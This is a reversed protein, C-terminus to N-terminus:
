AKAGEARGIRDRLVEAHSAYHLQGAGRYDGAGVALVLHAAAHQNDIPQIGAVLFEAKAGERRGHIVMAGERRAAAAAGALSGDFPEPPVELLAEALREAGCDAHISRVPLIALGDAEKPLRPMEVTGFPAAFIMGLAEAAAHRWVTITPPVEIDPHAPIALCRGEAGFQWGHYLCAIRDGRVFGFSLRMGRHPCRDEWVQATGAADRWVVIEEGFLRTGNSTGPEVGSALAVAHWGGDPAM